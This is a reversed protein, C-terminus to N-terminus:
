KPLERHLDDDRFRPASVFSQQRVWNEVLPELIFDELEVNLVFRYNCFPCRSFVEIDPQQLEERCRPCLLLRENRSRQVNNFVRFDYYKATDPLNRM